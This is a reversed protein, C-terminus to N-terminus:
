FISLLLPPAIATESFHYTEEIGRNRTHVSVVIVYHKVDIISVHSPSVLLVRAGAEAGVARSWGARAYWGFVAAVTRGLWCSIGSDDSIPIMLSEFFIFRLFQRQSKLPSCSQFWHKLLSRCVNWGCKYTPSYQRYTLLVPEAIAVGNLATTNKYTITCPSHMRRVSIVDLFTANSRSITGNNWLVSIKSSLQWANAMSLAADMFTAFDSRAKYTYTSLREIRQTIIFICWKSNRRPISAISWGFESASLGNPSGLFRPEWSYSSLLFTRMMM